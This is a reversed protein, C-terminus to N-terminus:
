IGSKAMIHLKIERRELLIWDKGYVMMLCIM